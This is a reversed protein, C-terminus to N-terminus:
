KTVDAHYYGEAFCNKTCGRVATMVDIGLTFPVYKRTCASIVHVVSVRVGRRGAISALGHCPSSVVCFGCRICTGIPRM